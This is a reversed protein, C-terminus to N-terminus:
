QARVRLFLFPFSPHATLPPAAIAAAPTRASCNSAPRPFSAYSSSFPAPFFVYRESENAAILELYREYKNGTVKGCTFCRVPIIM